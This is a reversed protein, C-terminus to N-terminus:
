PHEAPISTAHNITAFYCLCSVCTRNRRQRPVNEIDMGMPHRDQHSIKALDCHAIAKSFKDKLRRLRRQGGLSQLKIKCGSSFNGLYPLSGFRKQSVVELSSTCKLMSRSDVHEINSKAEFM